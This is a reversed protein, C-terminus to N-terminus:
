KQSPSYAHLGRSGLTTKKKQFTSYLRDGTVPPLQAHHGFLIVNVGGFYGPTPNEESVKAQVMRADTKGLMEADMMGAEDAFLFLVPYCIKQLRELAKGGSQLDQFLEPADGEQPRGSGLSFFSHVTNGGVSVAAAGTPAVVVVLDSSTLLWNGDIPLGVSTRSIRHVELDADIAVCVAKLVESKGTGGCGYVLLHIPPPLTVDSGNFTRDAWVLYWEYLLTFAFLQEGNLDSLPVATADRGPIVTSADAKQSAVWDRSWEEDSLDLQFAAKHAAWV